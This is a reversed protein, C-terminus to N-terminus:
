NDKIFSVYGENSTNGEKLFVVSGKKTPYYFCNNNKTVAKATYLKHYKIGNNIEEWNSNSTDYTLFKTTKNLSFIIKTEKTGEISKINVNEPIQYKKPISILKYESGFTFPLAYLSLSCISAPQNCKNESLVYWNNEIGVIPKDVFLFSFPYNIKGESLTTESSAGLSIENNNELDIIQLINYNKYTEFSYEHIALLNGLVVRKASPYLDLKKYIKNENKTNFQSDIRICNINNKSQLQELEKSIQVNKNFFTILTGIFVILVFIIIFIKIKRM